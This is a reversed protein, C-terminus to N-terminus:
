QTLSSDDHSENNSENQRKTLHGHVYIVPVGDYGCTMASLIIIKIAERFRENLIKYRKLEDFICRGTKMEDMNQDNMTVNKDGIKRFKEAGRAFHIVMTKYILEKNSKTSAITQMVSVLLNEQKTTFLKM